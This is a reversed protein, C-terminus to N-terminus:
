SNTCILLLSNVTHTCDPSVHHNYYSLYTLPVSTNYEGQRNWKQRGYLVLSNSIIKIKFFENLKEKIQLYWSWHIIVCLGMKNIFLIVLKYRTWNQSSKDGIDQTKLHPTHWCIMNLNASYLHYHYLRKWKKFTLPKQTVMDHEPKSFVLQLSIVKEIQQCDPATNM